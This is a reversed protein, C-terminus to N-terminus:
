EPTSLYYSIGASLHDFCGFHIHRFPYFSQQYFLEFNPLFKKAISPILNGLPRYIARLAIFLFVATMGSLYFRTRLNLKSFFRSRLWNSYKSLLSNREQGYVWFLIHGGPKLLELLRSYGQFPDLLHHLVGKCLILDVSNRKIPPNTLDGQVFSYKENSIKNRAVHIAESLDMLTVSSAGYQGFFRSYMGSGCGADLIVKEEIDKTTLFPSILDLFEDHNFDFHRDFTTWEFSFTSITNVVPELQSEPTIRPVGNIVPFIAGCEACSLSTNSAITNKTGEEYPTLEGQDFCCAIIEFKETYM